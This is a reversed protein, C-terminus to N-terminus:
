LNIITNKLKEKHFNYSNYDYNLNLSIISLLKLTTYNMKANLM